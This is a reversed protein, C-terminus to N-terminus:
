PFRVSFGPPTLWLAAGDGRDSQTQDAVTWSLGGRVAKWAQRSPGIESEIRATSVKSRRKAESRRQQRDSGSWRVPALVCYSIASKPSAANETKKMCLGDKRSCWRWKAFSRPRDFQSVSNPM